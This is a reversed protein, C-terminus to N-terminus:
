ASVETITLSAELASGFIPGGSNQNILATGPVRAVGFRVRYTHPLADGAAFIARLTATTDLDNIVAVSSVAIANPEVDRFLALVFDTSSSTSCPVRIDIILNSSAKQATYDTELDNFAAGETNQPVTNDYPFALITSATAFTTTHVTQLIVGPRVPAIDSLLQYTSGDFALLHISGSLIEGSVLDEGTFKKVPKAGSGNVDLTVASTNGNVFKLTFTFSTSAGDGNSFGTGPSFSVTYDNIGSASGFFNSLFTLKQNSISRDDILVPLQVWTTGDFLYWAIPTGGQPQAETQNATTKLWLPPNATTPTTAGVQFWHTESESIDLPVYRKLNSDWVWWQTGGKLWPGQNGSPEVDSTVFFSTGSPSVIRMRALMERFLDNPKGKFKAPLQSGQIVLNTNQFAM